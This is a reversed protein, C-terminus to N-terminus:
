ISLYPLVLIVASFIVAFVSREREVGANAEKM